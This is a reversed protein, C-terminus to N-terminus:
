RQTHTAVRRQNQAVTSGPHAAASGPHAANGGPRSSPVPCRRSRGVPRVQIDVISEFRCDPMACRLRRVDEGCQLGAKTLSTAEFLGRACATGAACAALDGGAVGGLVSRGLAVTNVVVCAHESALQLAAVPVPTGTPCRTAAGLGRDVRGEPRWEVDFGIVSGASPAGGPFLLHLLPDRHPGSPLDEVSSIHHLPM